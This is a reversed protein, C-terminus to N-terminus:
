GLVKKITEALEEPEVPKELYYEPAPVEGKGFEALAKQSRLFSKEAIGSLIIVPIHKLKADSQLNRYLKIGSERPMLVDLIILDPKEHKVLNMGEEGNTAELPTYGNEEIVTVSFLRVDPDDDVVLIKKPM